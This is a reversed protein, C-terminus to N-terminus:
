KIGQVRELELVGVTYPCPALVKLEVVGDGQGKAWSLRWGMQRLSWWWMGRGRLPERGLKRVDMLWEANEGWEVPYCVESHEVEGKPWDGLKGGVQKLCGELRDRRETGGVGGRWVGRSPTPCIRVTIRWDWARWKRCMQRWQCFLAQVLLM